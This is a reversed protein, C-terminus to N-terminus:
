YYQSIRGNLFADLVAPHFPETFCLVARFGESSVVMAARSELGPLTLWVRTGPLPNEMCDISASRCDLERVNVKARLIGRRYTAEIPADCHAPHWQQTATQANRDLWM